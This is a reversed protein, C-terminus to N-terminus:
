PKTSAHPVAWSPGGRTSSHPRRGGGPVPHAILGTAVAKNAAEVRSRAQLKDFINRMHRKVTGEAIGLRRAIQYNSLGQAALGIVETERPSLPGQSSPGGTAIRGESLSVPVPGGQSCADRVAASLTQWSVTKHLFGRIGLPLLSQVLSPDDYMTLILVNTGPSIDRLQRVTKEPQDNGPMEIDLLVLDPLHQSALDLLAAVHGADAVVEMGEEAQLLEALANRLVTHDDAILIRIPDM